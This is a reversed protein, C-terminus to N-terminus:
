GRKGGAVETAGSNTANYINSADVVQDSHGTLLGQLVKLAESGALAAPAYYKTLIKAFQDSGSTFSMHAVLDDLEDRAQQALEASRKLNVGGYKMGNPDAAIYQNGM